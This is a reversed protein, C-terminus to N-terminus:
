IKICTVRIRRLKRQYDYTGPMTKQLKKKRQQFHSLVNGNRHKNVKSMTARSIEATSEVVRNAQQGVGLCYLERLRSSRARLERLNTETFGGRINRTRMTMSFMVMLLKEMGMNWAALLAAIQGM